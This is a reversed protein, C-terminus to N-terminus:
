QTINGIQMRHLNNYTSPNTTSLTFFLHLFLFYLFLLYYFLLISFFFLFFSFFSFRWKVAFIHFLFGLFYSFFILICAFSIRM